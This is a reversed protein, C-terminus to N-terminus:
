DALLPPDGNTLSSVLFSIAIDECEFKTAVYSTLRSSFPRVKCKSTTHRRSSPPRIGSNTWFRCCVCVKGHTVRGIPFGEVFCWRRRTRCLTTVCRRGFEFCGLDGSEGFGSFARQSFECRTTGGYSKRQPSKSGRAPRQRWRVARNTNLARRLLFRPSQTVRSRHERHPLFVPLTPCGHSPNHLPRNTM